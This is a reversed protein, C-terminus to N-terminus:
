IHIAKGLSALAAEKIAECLTPHAHSAYALEEVTAGKEIALVGEGIM